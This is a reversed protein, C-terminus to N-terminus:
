PCKTRWIVLKCRFSFLFITTTSPGPSRLTKKKKKQNKRVSTIGSFNVLHITKDRPVQEETDKVRISQEILM